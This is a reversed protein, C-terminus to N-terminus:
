LGQPEDIIFDLKGPAYRTPHFLPAKNIRNNTIYLAQFLLRFKNNKWEADKGRNNYTIIKYAETTGDNVFEFKLPAEKIYFNNVAESYLQVKPLRDNPNLAEVFLKGGEETIQM